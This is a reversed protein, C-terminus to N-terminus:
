SIRLRPFIGNEFPIAAGRESDRVPFLSNGANAQAAFHAGASKSHGGFAASDFLVFLGIATLAAPLSAASRRATGILVGGLVLLMEACTTLRLLVEVIFLKEHPIPYSLLKKLDLSAGMSATIVPTVQWYLLVLLLGSTLVLPFYEANEPNAFFAEAAYAILAWFGYFILGTISSLVATAPKASLRFTRMSRWQALLIAAIMAGADPGSRLPKIIESLVDPKAADRELHPYKEGAHYDVRFTKYMDGDRILLEIPATNKAAAAIAERLLTSTYQRNNVAVMKVAPAVGAKQAPSGVRVDSVEGEDRVKMGISFWFDSVKNKAEFDRDLTSPTDTYVLNWGGNVIGNLPAHESPTDLRKRLFSPGITHSCRTSRRSWTM